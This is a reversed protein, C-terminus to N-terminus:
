SSSATRGTPVVSPTAMNRSWSWGHFSDARVVAASRGCPAHGAPSGSRPANKATPSNTANAAPTPSGCHGSRLQTASPTPSKTGAMREGCSRARMSTCSSVQPIAPKVTARSSISGCLGVFANIEKGCDHSTCGPSLSAIPTAPPRAAAEAAAASTAKSAAASCASGPGIPQSSRRPKPPMRRSMAKKMANAASQTTNLTPDVSTHVAVPTNGPSYSRADRTVAATIRAYRKARNAGAPTRIATRM